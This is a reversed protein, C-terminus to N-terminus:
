DRPCTLDARPLAGDLLYSEVAGAVCTAPDFLYVGHRFAELTIMRSGTLARHMAQQGPYPTAPDGSAAVLLAPHGTTIRPLTELPRVPWFACPTIDRFLPGFLPESALHAQVDRFYTEPDRSTARDACQNAILASFGFEPIVDTNDYLSLKQEQDPTPTVPLGRAADRLVRVQASLEAYFADSDEATLLLGPVMATDIHHDGVQLPGRAIRDVVALVDDATDGLHYQGDHQAAWSAWDRLAAANAPGLERTLHPGAADPAIASDLVIRDTHEGFMQLYVAGIHTGFSWGLYSIKQEGLAARVLDMDRAM